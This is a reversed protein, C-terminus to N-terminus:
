KSDSDGGDLSELKKSFLGHDFSRTVSVRQGPEGFSIAVYFRSKKLNLGEYAQIM